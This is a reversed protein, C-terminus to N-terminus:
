SIGLDNRIGLKFVKPDNAKKTIVLSNTHFVMVMVRVRVKVNLMEVGFGTV